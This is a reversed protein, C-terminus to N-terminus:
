DWRERSLKRRTSCVDTYNSARSFKEWPQGPLKRSTWHLRSYKRPQRCSKWFNRLSRATTWSKAEPCWYSCSRSKNQMTTRISSPMWWWWSASPDAACSSHPMPAPLSSSSSILPSFSIDGVVSGWTLACSSQHSTTLQWNLSWTRLTKPDWRKIPQILLFLM